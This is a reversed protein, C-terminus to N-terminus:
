NEGESVGSSLVSSVDSLRALVAFYHMSAVGSNCVGTIVTSRVCTIMDDWLLNKKKEQM